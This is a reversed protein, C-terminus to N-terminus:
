VDPVVPRGLPQSSVWRFRSEPPRLATWPASASSNSTAPEEVRSKRGSACENALIMWTAQMSPPAIRSCQGSEEVRALPRTSVLGSNKSATGRTKSFTNLVACCCAAALPTFFFIKRAAASM